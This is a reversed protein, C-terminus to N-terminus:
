QLDNLVALNGVLELSRKVQHHNAHYCLVKRVMLKLPYEVQASANHRKRAFSVCKGNNIVPAFDLQRWQPLIAASSSWFKKLTGVLHISGLARVVLSFASEGFLYQLFFTNM